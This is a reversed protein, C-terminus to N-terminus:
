LPGRSSDVGVVMVMVTSQRLKVLFLYLYM